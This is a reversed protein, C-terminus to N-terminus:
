PCRTTTRKWVDVVAEFFEAKQDALRLREEIEKIRQEPIPPSRPM